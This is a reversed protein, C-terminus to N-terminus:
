RMKRWYVGPAYAEIVAGTLTCTIMLYDCAPCETHTHHPHALYARKASAGCNPCRITQLTPKPIETTALQKILSLAPQPLTSRM